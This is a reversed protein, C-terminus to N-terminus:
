TRPPPHRGDRSPRAMSGASVGHADEALTTSVIIRPTARSQSDGHAQAVSPTLAIAHQPPVTVTHQPPRTDNHQPPVTVTHQPPVTYQPPVTVTHRPPVTAFTQRPERDGSTLTLEDRRLLETARRPSVDGAPPTVADLRPQVPTVGEPRPPTLTATATSTVAAAGPPPLAWYEVSM